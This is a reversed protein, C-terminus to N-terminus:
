ALPTYFKAIKEYFIAPVFPKTLYDAMGINLAKEHTEPMADATLAIIPLNPHTQKIIRTAEFGDMVPMQLDMLVLDYAKANVMDVAIQGNYAEDVTAQWKKLFNAAILLNFTNDDVLLIKMGYLNLSLLDNKGDIEKQKDLPLDFTIAFTFQTGKGLESAVQISSQHLEVLRKTIALGLGTGGNNSNIYQSEQMFPDFIVQLNNPAIGIGSDTVSFKITATADNIGADELKITIKGKQTFKVANSLLNNLIQSLRMQDGMVFEPVTEAIILEIEVMKDLAKPLFSKKIKQILQKINFQGINLELKGAEIKNYDLIDNIIALLNDASFKLINLYELQDPKPAESILLNTIGIVANMPTRIEHSMISLFESKFQSAKEASEKASILEETARQQETIDEGIATNEQIEGNEDYTVTNQWSIIRQEGNSCIVPNIYEPNIFKAVYWSKIVEAASEPVFDLWRKGLIQQQKYGMLNALHHNCFTVNGSKDLSLAALKVTELVLKYKDETKQYAIEAEKRATIDQITGVIKRISGDDRSILKGVIISLYKIKKSSTTVKFVFSHTNTESINKLFHEIASKDDHAAFNLLLKKIGFETTVSQGTEFIRAVEDSWTIRKSLTDWKWNGIKAINQAEILETRSLKIAKEALRSQTIDQIVGSTRKAHTSSGTFLNGKIVKFYRLHGRPTFLKHEFYDESSTTHLSKFYQFTKERDAPHVLSIYYDLKTAFSPPIEDVELITYLNDSWYTEKTTHDYWWNGTKAILQAEQLLQENEKLASEYKKEETIDTLAGSIRSTYNGDRDFVPSVKLNFWKGTGFDSPHVLSAPKRHKIVYDLTDNFKKAKEPGLVDELKKGVATKPDIVRAYSDNFWVNLCVKDENFEFIIDNLSTLLADFQISIDFNSCDMERKEDAIKQLKRCYSLAVFFFIVALLIAGAVLAYLYTGPHGSLIVLLHTKLM